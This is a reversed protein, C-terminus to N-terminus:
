TKSQKKCRFPYVFWNLYDQLYSTDMGTFRSLYRKIWFSFSNVLAMATPTEEDRVTSKHIENKVGVSKIARHHVQLGNHFIQGFPFIVNM